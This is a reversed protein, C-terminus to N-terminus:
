EPVYQGKNASHIGFYLSEDERRLRFFAVGIRYRQQSNCESQIKSINLGVVSLGRRQAKYKWEFGMLFFNVM